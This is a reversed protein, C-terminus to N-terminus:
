TVQAMFYLCKAMQGLSETTMSPRSGRPSVVSSTNQGEEQRGGPFLPALETM